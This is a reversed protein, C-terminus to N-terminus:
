FATVDYARASWSSCVLILVEFGVSVSSFRKRM